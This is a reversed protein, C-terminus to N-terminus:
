RRSPDNQNSHTNSIITKILSNNLLFPCSRFSLPHQANEHCYIGQLAEEIEQRAQEMEDMRERFREEFSLPPPPTTPRSPLRTEEVEEIQTIVQTASM